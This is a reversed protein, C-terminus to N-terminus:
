KVAFKNRMNQTGNLLQLIVQEQVGSSPHLIRGFCPSYILLSIFFIYQANNCRMPYKHIYIYNKWSQVTTDRCYSYFSNFFCSLKVDYSPVSIPFHMGSINQENTIQIQTHLTFVNTHLIIPLKIVCYSIKHLPFSHMKRWNKVILSHNV